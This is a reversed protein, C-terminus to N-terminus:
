LFLNIPLRYSISHDASFVQELTNFNESILKKIDKKSKIFFNDDKNVFLIYESDTKSIGAPRERNGTVIDIYKDDENFFVVDLEVKYEASPYESMFESAASDRVIKIIQNIKSTELM